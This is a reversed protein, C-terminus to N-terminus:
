PSVCTCVNGVCIGLGPFCQIICLNQDCPPAICQNNQCTEGANCDNNTCCQQANPDCVCANGSKIFGFNCTIDCTGNPTCTSTGNAPSPCAACSASTYCGTQPTNGTCVGGCKHEMAGCDGGGSSSSSSSTTTGSTSTSTSSTSTSSTSTSSTSTSSTSTTGSTTSGAGGNGGGGPAGGEGGLFTDAGTACGGIASALGVLLFSFGFRTITM